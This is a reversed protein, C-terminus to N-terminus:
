LPLPIPDLPFSGTDTVFKTPRGNYCILRLSGNPAYKRILPPWDSGGCSFAFREGSESAVILNHINSKPVPNFSEVIFDHQGTALRTPKPPQPIRSSKAPADPKVRLLHAGNRKTLYSELALITVTETSLGIHGALINALREIENQM